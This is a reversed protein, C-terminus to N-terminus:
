VEKTAPCMCCLKSKFWGKKVARKSAQSISAVECSTSPGKVLVTVPTKNHAVSVIPGAHNHISPEPLQAVEVPAFLSAGSAESAIARSMSRVSLQDVQVASAGHTMKSCIQSVKFCMQCIFCLILPTAFCHM